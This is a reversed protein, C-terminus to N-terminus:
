RWIFGQSTDQIGLMAKRVGRWNFFQSLEKSDEWSRIFTNNLDYQKINQIRSKPHEISNRRLSEIREPTFSAKFSESAIEKRHQYIKNMLHTMEEPALKEKSFFFGGALYNKGNLVKRISSESINTARMCSSISDWKDIFIGDRDYRFIEIKLYSGRRDIKINHEDLIKSVVTYDIGLLKGIKKITYGSDYYTIVDNLYKARKDKAKQSRNDKSSQTHKLGLQNKALPRCNYGNKCANLTDLYFQEREVCLNPVVEELIKFYMNEEGYKNYAHRLKHSDHKGSKLDNIHNVWRNRFGNGSKFKKNAKSASGVYLKGSGNIFGICYIGTTTPFDKRNTIHYVM